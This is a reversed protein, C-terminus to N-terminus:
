PRIRVPVEGISGDPLILRRGPKYSRAEEPSSIRVPEKAKEAQASLYDANAKEILAMGASGTTKSIADTYINRREAKEAIDRDNDGLQVLFAPLNRGAESPSVAAGSVHTLFAAGWNLQANMAQRYADTMAVNGIGPLRSGAASFPSVALVKGNDLQELRRLDPTVRNVFEAAKTQQETYKVEPAPAGPPVVYPGREGQPGVTRELLGGGVQVGEPKAIDQQLKVLDAQAKALNVKAQEIALPERAIELQAKAATLRDNMEKLARQPDEFIRQERLKVAADRLGRQHTFEEQQQKEKELRISKWYELQQTATRALPGNPNIRPDSLVASWKREEASIPLPEPRKPEPPVETVYPPAPRPIPEQSIPVNPAPQVGPVVIAPRQGMPVPSFMDSPVPAQATWGSTSAAPAPGADSVTGTGLAAAYRTPQGQNPASTIDNLSPFQQAIQAFEGQKWQPSPLLQQLMAINKPTFESNPQGQSAAAIDTMQEPTLQPSPQGQSAAAIDTMQEPTLQPSPQGQSAAAIDTMQEPTLQSSPQDRETLAQAIAARPTQQDLRTGALRGLQAPNEQTVYTEGSPLRASSGYRGSAVGRAAVGGSANGTPTFGLTQGGLDSGRLVPTLADESIQGRGFTSAPYYGSSGPGTYQRTVQELPQNRAAARNFITEAIIQQERPNASEGRAITRIRERLAPNAEMEALQKNRDYVPRPPPLPVGGAATAPVTSATLPSLESADARPESDSTAAIAARRAPAAAPSSPIGADGGMLAALRRDEYAGQEREQRELEALQMRDGLAEGVYTLGEGITKPFPSRRGMLQEAIKRRTQLAQYSLPSDASQDGWFAFSLPNAMM